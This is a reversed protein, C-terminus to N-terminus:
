DMYLKRLFTSKKGPYDPNVFGNQSVVYVWLELDEETVMLIATTKRGDISQFLSHAAHPSCFDSSSELFFSGSAVSAFHNRLVIVRMGSCVMLLLDHKTRIVTLDEDEQEEMVVKAHQNTFSKAMFCISISSTQKKFLNTYLDSGRSGTLYITEWDMFSQSQPKSTIFGKTDYVNRSDSEMVLFLLLVIADWIKKHDQTAKQHGNYVQHVDGEAIWWKGNWIINDDM